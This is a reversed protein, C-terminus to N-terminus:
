KRTTRVVQEMADLEAVSRAGEIRCRHGSPLTVERSLTGDSAPATFNLGRRTPDSQAVGRETWFKHCIERIEDPTRADRLLVDLEPVSKPMESESM